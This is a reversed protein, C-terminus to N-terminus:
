VANQPSAAGWGKLLRSNPSNTIFHIFLVSRRVLDDTSLEQTFNQNSHLIIQSVFRGTSLLAAFTLWSEEEHVCESHDGSVLVSERSPRCSLLKWLLQEADARTLHLGFDRFLNIIKSRQFWAIRESVVVVTLLQSHAIVPPPKLLVNSVGLLLFLRLLSLSRSSRTFALLLLFAFSLWFDFFVGERRFVWVWFIFIVSALPQKVRSRVLRREWARAWM